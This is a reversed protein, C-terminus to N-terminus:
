PWFVRLQYPDHDPFDSAEVCNAVSFIVPPVVRGSEVGLKLRKSVLFLESADLSDSTWDTLSIGFIVSGSIVGVFAVFEVM